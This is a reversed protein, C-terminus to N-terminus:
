LAPEASLATELASGLAKWAELMQSSHDSHLYHRRIKTSGTHIVHNQCLDIVKDEIGITEMLTAGTRRLDHATWNGNRGNALVLTNDNRRAKLAKRNMFMVQRDGIQKGVTSESVHGETQKAPFCWAGKGTKEYLREFQMKAFPSLFVTLARQGAKTKKVNEKPIYWTGAALDVHEWRAKLTEGIRSLTSLCIWIAVQTALAIPRIARRRDEAAAYEREMRGFIAQLERIEDLSLIRDRINALDYDKEVIKPIEILETPNGEILLARWPKRKEGWVLMQRIATFVVVALRNAGRAVILRLLARIGHEDLNRLAITGIQPLVDKQFVRKLEANDDSRRVGDTIWADYLDKVTLDDAQRRDEEALTAEIQRQAEIRIVRKQDSPNVGTKVWERAQDRNGRIQDLALSPWTGCYHRKTKGEWKYAYRWAVSVNAGHLRVEGQLGNGDALTDGKWLPPIAELEKVTWRFGKGRKPYRNM